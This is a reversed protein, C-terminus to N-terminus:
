PLSVWGYYSWIPSSCRDLSRTRNGLAEGRGISGADLGESRTIVRHIDTHGQDLAGGCDRQDPAGALMSADFAEKGRDILVVLQARRHHPNAEFAVLRQKHLGLHRFLSRISRSCTRM